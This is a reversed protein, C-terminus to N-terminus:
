SAVTSRSYRCKTSVCPSYLVPLRYQRLSRLTSSGAPGAGSGPAQVGADPVSVPGQDDSCAALLIAALALTCATRRTPRPTTHRM